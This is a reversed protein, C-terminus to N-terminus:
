IIEFLDELIKKDDFPFKVGNIEQYKEHGKGAVLIIDGSSALNVSTKIAELRNSIVLTKSKKMIDIGAKMDELIADPNETRPNDSTLIIMDSNVTAIKAMEPRKTKDRDGGTGVVTILKENGTRLSNITKLVNYLADPTHAYDVIATLGKESSRIVEFRGEAGKLGSLAALVEEKEFGLLIATSYVALLNYANFEGSLLSYFHLGDIDMLMGDFHNELVKTKFDAMSKLAYTKKIAKTNQLMVNGNKDDVNVLAFADVSLEDFFKKKASIYERFTNHYDLHDHTINSFIAVDFDLGSIRNQHIAHSSVEMFVYECGAELMELLLKNISIADPTTHTSSLLVDSIRNEITSLMGTKFGMAMFLRYLLSVTTTKGNTGTIGVLKMQSSPNGYFNSAIIGLARSSDKVVVYSVNEDIVDPLEECVVAVAGNAVAKQIFNHGDVKTGRVAVFLGDLSISRSDMSISDIERDVAGEIKLLGAGYLIDQLHEKMM